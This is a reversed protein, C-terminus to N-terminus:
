ANIVVEVVEKLVGTRVKTCQLDKIKVFLWHHVCCPLLVTSAVALCFNPSLLCYIIDPLYQSLLIFFSFMACVSKVLYSCIILCIQILFFEWSNCLLVTQISLQM